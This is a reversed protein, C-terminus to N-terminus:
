ENVEGRLINLLNEIFEMDTIDDNIDISENDQLEDGWETKHSNNKIYKEAKTNKDLEERYLSTYETLCNDLKQNDLRLQKNEKLLEFFRNFTDAIMKADEENDCSLMINGGVFIFGNKWIGEWNLPRVVYGNIAHKYYAFPPDFREEIKNNM